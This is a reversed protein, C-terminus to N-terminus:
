LYQFTLFILNLILGTNQSLCAKVTANIVEQWKRSLQTYNSFLKSLGDSSNKEIKMLIENRLKLTENRLSMRKYLMCRDRAMSSFESSCESHETILYGNDLVMLFKQIGPTNKCCSIWSHRESCNVKAVFVKKKCEPTEIPSACFKIYFENICHFYKLLNQNLAGDVSLKCSRLTQDISQIDQNERHDGYRYMQMYDIGNVTGNFIMSTKKVYCDTICHDDNSKCEKICLKEVANDILIPPRCCESLSSDNQHLSECRLFLFNLSLALYKFKM